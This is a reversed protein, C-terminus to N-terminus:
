KGDTAEQEKSKVGTHRETQHSGKSEDETIKSISAEAKPIIGRQQAYDTLLTRLQARGRHLRSMVTGVPCQMIEAIETYAMGEVDAYYVAMKRENPLQDLAAKIDSDSLGSLAIFEASPEQLAPTSSFQWDELTDTPTVEPERQKKRYTNIYQNVLIRHLWARLNTGPQFQDFATFAKLYTEQVLDEADAPKRTMRLAASYLSNLHELASAEFRAVKEESSETGSDLLPETLQEQM